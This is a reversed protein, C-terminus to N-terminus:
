RVVEQLTRAVSRWRLLPGVRGAHGPFAWSLASM